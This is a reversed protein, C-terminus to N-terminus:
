EVVMLETSENKQAEIIKIEGNTGLTLRGAVFKVAKEDDSSRGALLRQKSDNIALPLMAMINNYNKSAEEFKINLKDAVDLKLPNGDDLKEYEDHLYHIEKRVFLIDDMVKRHSIMDLINEFRFDVNEMGQSRKTQIMTLLMKLFDNNRDIIIEQICDDPIAAPKQLTYMVKQNTANFFSYVTPSFKDLFEDFNKCLLHTNIEKIKDDELSEIGKVDGVLTLIDFKEPNIEDFLITRNTQEIIEM